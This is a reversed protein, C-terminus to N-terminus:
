RVVRLSLRGAPRSLVLFSPRSVLIGTLTIHGRRKKDLRKVPRSVGAVRLRALVRGTGLIGRPSSRRGFYTRLMDRRPSFGPSRRLCNIGLSHQCVVSNDRRKRGSVLISVLASGNANGHTILKIGRKRTVSFSVGSFLIRTKFHGALGRISLCPVRDTVGAVGAYLWLFFGTSIFGGDM